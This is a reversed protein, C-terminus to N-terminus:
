TAAPEAPGVAERSAEAPEAVARDEPNLLLFVAAAVAAGALDALLWIWIKSWAFLGGSAAAVAVAPNFAGGSLGGVAFAGAAVTFGIALGFFGNGAQDRSTAVNLVVYALAFTFLGEAVLAVGIARGSPSLAAVHGPNVLYKATLAGLIGGVVQVVAYAAADVAGIKGRLFVALTVAPNYHAGSIHGGAFIMVMLEAGIALPAMPAKALVTCGITLVLFFTGIFETAYSSYNRM